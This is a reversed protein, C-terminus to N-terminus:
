WIDHGVYLPHRVGLTGVPVLSHSVHGKGKLRKLFYISQNARKNIAKTLSIEDVLAQGKNVATYM